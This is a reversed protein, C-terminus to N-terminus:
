NCFDFSWRETLGTGFETDEYDGNYPSNWNYEVPSSLRTDLQFHNGYTAAAPMRPSFMRYSNGAAAAAPTYNNSGPLAQGTFSIGQGLTSLCYVILWLLEGHEIICYFISFVM